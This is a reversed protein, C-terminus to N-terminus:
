IAGFLPIWIKNYLALLYRRIPRLEMWIKSYIKWKVGDTRDMEKRGKRYFGIANALINNKKCYEPLLNGDGLLVVDDNFINIIRHLVYYKPEIEALVADGIKIEKPAQLMAKDRDNELFPRMSFGKLHITVTKGENLLKVIEPIFFENKLKKKGKPSDIM